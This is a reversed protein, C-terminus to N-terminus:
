DLLQIIQIIDIIQITAISHTKFYSGCLQPSRYQGQLRTITNRNSHFLLIMLVELEMMFKQLIKLILLDQEQM